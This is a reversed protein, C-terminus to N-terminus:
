TQYFSSQIILLLLFFGFSQWIHLLLKAAMQSTCMSLLTNEGQKSKMFIYIPEKLATMSSSILCSFNFLFFFCCCCQICILTEEHSFTKKNNNRFDCESEHKSNWCFEEISILNLPANEGNESKFFFVFCFFRHFCAFEKNLMFMYWLVDMSQCMSVLERKAQKGANDM